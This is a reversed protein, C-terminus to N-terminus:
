RAVLRRMAERIDTRFIGADVAVGLAAAETRAADREATLRSVTADLALGRQADREATLRSVMAEHARERQAQQAKKVVGVADRSAMQLTRLAPLAERAMLLAEGDQLRKQYVRVAWRVERLVEGDHLERLLVEMDQLAQQLRTRSVEAVEMRIKNLDPDYRLEQETREM